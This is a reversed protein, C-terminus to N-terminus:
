PSEIATPREPCFRSRPRDASTVCPKGATPTWVRLARGSRRWKARWALDVNDGGLILHDGVAIREFRPSGSELVNLTILTFDTTGGGVDCILILENPRVHEQWNREHRM